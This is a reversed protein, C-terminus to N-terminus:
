VIMLILTLVLGITAFLPLITIKARRLTDDILFSFRELLKGGIVRVDNITVTHVGAKSPEMQALAAMTTEKIYEILMAHDIAEGIPHYGRKGLITASVSHTDTTFVEGENIGTLYLASLIEERLGSIMNNGDITVYATRQEGVKVVVATIGGAGMGDELSFERPFVTAAGVEFPRQEISAAISLCRVATTRLVALATEADVKGDISNHSDIVVCSNLGLRSAEQRVFLGLEQPLDETTKPALTFSFLAFDGFIQCCATGLGDSVKVFPTAKEQSPTFGVSEAVSEIVKWNESQSVLDLEHSLLGHPVSVPCHTQEELSTKMLSPLISSGVNKFPGPHISPVVMVTKSKASGFKVASVEVAQTDGLKELFGEFPVNLGVIWNLLFAKLVSLSPVGLSKKGVGNLLFVFLSGGSIGILTASVLFLITSYDFRAWIALFPVVCSFPQLLSATVIRRYSSSSTSALVIFRFILAVAFGFVFMRTWWLFGFPFALTVGLFMFFLWLAWSFISLGTTRRLDYIPDGTLVLTSLVNDVVLNVAFTSFGFLLGKVLGEPSPLVMVTAIFGGGVVISALLLFM